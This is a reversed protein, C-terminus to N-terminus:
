VWASPNKPQSKPLAVILVLVVFLSAFKKNMM